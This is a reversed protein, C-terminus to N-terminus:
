TLLWIKPAAVPVPEYAPDVGPGKATLVHDSPGEPMNRLTARNVDELLPDGKAV